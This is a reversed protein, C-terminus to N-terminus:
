RLMFRVSKKGHVKAFYVGNPLSLKITQSGSVNLSTVKNGRLDFIEVVSPSSVEIRLTKDSQTQISFHTIPTHSKLIPTAYNSSSSPEMYVSSSSVEAAESSSSTDSSNSSVVSSSSAAASSSSPKSSSSVAASSSSPKSSSSAAASSSSPKSSSSVAASSSSPQSSSSVAASSSSTAPCTVEQYWYGKEINTEIQGGSWVWSSACTNGDGESSVKCVYCKNNTYKFCATYPDSPVTNTPYTILPTKCTTAQVKAASSSSPITSGGASSSSTGGGTSNSSPTTGSSGMRMKAYSYDIWGETTYNNYVGYAGVEALIKAEYLKGMKLGLADWKKFHETISITGCKRVTKRVSFYQDFDKNGEISPENTRSNKYIDYTGGDVTLTGLSSCKGDCITGTGVPSDDGQHRNGWWDDVIYFEVLKAGNGARAWGYIGIYSYNDGQLRGSRTYRYDAFIDSYETFLKGSGSGSNEFQYGVRALYDFKTGPEKWDGRFAAGGGQNAGYVKMTVKNKSQSANHWLKYQYDTGTISGSVEDTTTVSYETGGTLSTATGGCEVQGFAPGVFAIAFCLAIPLKKM